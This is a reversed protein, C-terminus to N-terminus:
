LCLQGHFDINKSSEMSLKDSTMKTPLYNGLNLQMAHSFGYQIHDKTLRQSDLCQLTPCELKLRKISWM